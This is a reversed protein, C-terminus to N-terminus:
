QATDAAHTPLIVPRRTSRSAGKSTSRGPPQACRVAKTASHSRRAVPFSETIDRGRPSERAEYPAPLLDHITVGLTRSIKDLDALDFSVECTMRRSLYPQKLGTRRALEAASINRRALQVRIEEAVRRSLEDASM